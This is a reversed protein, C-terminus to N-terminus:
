GGSLSDALKRVLGYLAQTGSLCMYAACRRATHSHCRAVRGYGAARGPCSLPRCIFWNASFPSTRKEMYRCDTVVQRDPRTRFAAIRTPARMDPAVFILM